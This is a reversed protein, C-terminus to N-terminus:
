ESIKNIYQRVVPLSFQIRKAVRVGFLKQLLQYKKRLKPKEIVGGLQIAIQQMHKFVDMREPYFYIAWRNLYAICAQRTKISDQMKMITRISSFISYALSNLKHNNLGYDHSMGINSRRCFSRSGTIFKISTANSIVRNFYEGDDDLSLKEDWPGANDTLKRSVLWTEIAMWHNDHLKKTLWDVPDLDQWLSTPNFKAKNPNTYFKGWEGSLLISTRDGPEAREIQKSIKDHSLLDDADLWQIYEGQAVSLGLNRACSAGRNETAIVKVNPASYTKAISLTSDRSGDDVIIIEKCPWTQNVASEISYRIWKEANFAPVIISIKKKM